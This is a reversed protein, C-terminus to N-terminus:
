DIKYFLVIIILYINNYLSIFFKISLYIVEYKKLYIWIKCNQVLIKFENCIINVSNEETCVINMAICYAYVRIIFNAIQNLVYILTPFSSPIKFFTYNTITILDQLNLYQDYLAYFPENLYIMTLCCIDM